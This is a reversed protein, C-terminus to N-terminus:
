YNVNAWPGTATAIEEPGQTNGAPLDFNDVNYTASNRVIFNHTGNVRIGFPVTIADNGTVTNGEVRGRTGEVLIGGGSNNSVTNGSITEDHVGPQVWVGVSANGRVANGSITAGSGAVSIGSSGNGVATNAEVVAAGSIYIGEWGNLATYCGRIIGHGNLSIGRSGNNTAVTDEVIGDGAVLLGIDGNSRLELQRYHGNSGLVASIGSSGWYGVSGNEVTVGYTTSSVGAGSGPVGNLAFGNLDLTVDHATIWIGDKGAAGTINGTLYYSGSQSITIPFSAASAPQSIPIRPEVQDLTKMTPGPTGPPDLPGGLVGRALAGALMLAILVLMVSNFRNRIAQM